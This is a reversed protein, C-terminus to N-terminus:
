TKNFHELKLHSKLVSIWLPFIGKAKGIYNNAADIAPPQLDRLLNLCIEAHEPTFFLEDFTNPQEQKGQKPTPTPTSEHECKDFTAFLKPHKKVQEEVKNVIGSYYGHEKIAKHTLVFPYQKKVYGWGENIGTHQVHFFNLHIDRVYQEANAGYLTSPSVKFENEFYQEGEKYAEIYTNLYDMGNLTTEKQTDMNKAPLAKSTLIVALEPTYIKVTDTETKVMFCGNNEIQRQFGKYEHKTQEKEDFFSTLWYRTDAKAKPAALCDIWRQLSFYFEKDKTKTKYDPFYTQLEKARDIETEIFLQETNDPHQKLYDNLKQGKLRELAKIDRTDIYKSVRKESKNDEGKELVWEVFLHNKITGKVADIHVRRKM